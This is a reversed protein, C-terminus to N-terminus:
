KWSYDDGGEIEAIILNAIEKATKDQIITSNLNVVLHSQYAIDAVGDIQAGITLEQIEHEILDGLDLFDVEISNRYESVPNENEDIVIAQAISEEPLVEFNDQNNLEDDSSHIIRNSLADNKNKQDRKEKSKRCTKHRKNNWVFQDEPHNCHCKTCYEM